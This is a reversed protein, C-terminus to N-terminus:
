IRRGTGPALDPGTRRRPPGSPRGPRRLRVALALSLALVGLSFAQTVTLWGWLYEAERVFDTAFRVAAYLALYVLFRQGEPTSRGDARGPTGRWAPLMLLGFIALDLAAELPQAPFRLGDALTTVIGWPGAAPHGYCCGRLTCGVRGIASGLAMGPAMVDLYSLVPRGRRRATWFVAALGGLLAGYGSLGGEFISFASLPDARYAPWEVLVYLLRAGVFGAIAALLSLNLIEVAPLRRRRGEAITVLVGAVVALDLFFGWSYVALPGIEFLVPRM